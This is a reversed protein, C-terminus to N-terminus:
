DLIEELESISFPKFDGLVINDESTTTEVISILPLAGEYAIGILKVPQNLPAGAFNVLGNISNNGTVVASFETFVVYTKVPRTSNTEVVLNTKGDIANYYRDCNLWGLKQSALVFYDLDSANAMELAEDGYKEYKTRFAKRYKESDRKVRTGFSIGYTGYNGMYMTKMNLRPMALVFDEFMKDYPTERTGFKIETIQGDNDCAIKAYSHYGNAEFFRSAEESRPLKNFEEDFYEFFTREDNKLEWEPHDFPSTRGGYVTMIATEFDSPSIAETQANEQFDERWNMEGEENYSGYFTQMQGGTGNRPFLVSYAEDRKLIVGTNNVSAQIYITGGSELLDGDSVTALDKSILDAPGYYEEVGIEIDENGYYAFIGAPFFIKTGEECSILTDRKPDIWFIETLPEPFIEAETEVFLPTEILTQVNLSDAKKEKLKKIRFRISQGLLMGAAVIPATFKAVPTPRPIKEQNDIKPDVACSTIIAAVLLCHVNKAIMSVQNSPMAALITGLQFQLRGMLYSNLSVKVSSKPGRTSFYNAM